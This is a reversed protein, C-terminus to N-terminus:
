EDEVVSFVAEDLWLGRSSNWDDDIYAYSEQRASARSTTAMIVAYITLQEDSIQGIPPSEWRASGYLPSSEVHIERGRLHFADM